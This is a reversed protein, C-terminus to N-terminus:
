AVRRAGGRRGIGDSWRSRSDKGRGEITPDPEAHLRIAAVFTACGALAAATTVTQLADRGAAPERVPALTTGALSPLGALFGPWRPDRCITIDTALLAADSHPRFAPPRGSTM